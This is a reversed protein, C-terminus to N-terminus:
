SFWINYLVVASVIRFHSVKVEPSQPEALPLLASAQVLYDVFIGINYLVVPSSESGQTGARRTPQSPRIDGIGRVCDFTASVCFGCYLASGSTRLLHHRLRASLM